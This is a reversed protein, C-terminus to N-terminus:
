VALRGAAAAMSAPFALLVTKAYMELWMMDPGIRGFMWLASFSVVLAVCYAIVTESFPNLGPATGAHRRREGSFGAAFVVSYSILLSLLVVLSLHTLPTATAIDNLDGVPVIALCLFLAGAVAAALEYLKQQGASLKGHVRRSTADGPEPAYRSADRPLLHNAVAVGLAVPGVAVAIRGLAVTGPQADGIQGLAAFIVILSLIAIALAQLADVAHEIGRRATQQFGIWYVAAWTLLFAFVLLWLADIPGMQEGLWWSDVTFVTPIGVLFGSAMGRVTDDLHDAWTVRQRRM